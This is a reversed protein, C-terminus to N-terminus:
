GLGWSACVVLRGRPPLVETILLRGDEEVPPGAAGEPGVAAQAGAVPVTPRRAAKVRM